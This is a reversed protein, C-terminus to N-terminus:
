RFGANVTMFGLFVQVPFELTQPLSVVLERKLSFWRPEEISGLSVGEQELRYRGRSWLNAPVWQAALPQRLFIQQRRLRGKPTLVDAVALADGGQHLTYRTENFFGRSLFEFGIRYLGQPTRIQIDAEPSDPPHWRLRANKAQPLNPWVLDALLSGSGDFAQYHFGSLASRQRISFM